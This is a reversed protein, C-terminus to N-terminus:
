REFVRTFFSREARRKAIVVPPAAERAVREAVSGVVPRTFARERTAGLVVFDSEAARAVISGAVDESTEVVPKCTIGSLMERATEVNEEAATSASEDSGPAVYSVVSVVADNADAVAAVLDTAPELHPGGVTPLLIEDMGDATTGVREVFVDCPARGIVRDVTAGLVLDSARANEQWGLLIADADSEAQATLIAESVDSGVLLHRRIPVPAEQALVSARELVRPRREDFQDRIFDGSFLLFPSTVPKHIVSVVLIEGGSALDTATRLLQDVHDPNSLAVLVTSGDSSGHFGEDKLVTRADVM